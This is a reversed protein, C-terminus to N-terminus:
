FGYERVNEVFLIMEQMDPYEIQCEGLYNANKGAERYNLISEIHQDTELLIDLDEETLSHSLDSMVDISENSFFLDRVGEENKQPPEQQRDWLGKYHKTYM